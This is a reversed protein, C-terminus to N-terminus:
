KQIRAIEKLLVEKNLPKSFYDNFGANLCVQKDTSMAHATLAFVTVKKDIKRIEKLAEFGDMVPMKIDMLILSVDRNRKFAEVGELGNMAHILKYPSDKLIAKYYEQNSMQDEVILIKLKDGEEPVIEEVEVTSKAVVDKVEAVEMGVKPVTFYFQSGKGFESDVWINGNLLHVIKKTLYLGIGTGRYLKKKDDEIKYFRDFLYDIHSQKIGIGTDKVYFVVDKKELEYGFEIRGEETYKIANDLLNILVQKLRECDAKVIYNQDPSTNFVQIRQIGSSKLKLKYMDELERMIKKLECGKTEIKLQDSEIMSVDLIDNVLRLLSENSSNIISVYQKREEDSLQEEALINSFGVIANLPTRIEHSMNALFSSKLQDARRAKLFESIYNRKAQSMLVYMIFLYLFVGFYVDIIRSYVSPYKGVVTPNNYEVYFLILINLILLISVFLFQKGDLMFILYSFLVVFLYLVPGHTGFNYYWLFNTITVTILVLAWKSFELGRGTRALFFLMSFVFLSIYPIIKLVHGFDLEINIFIAVLSFLASAIILPNVFSKKFEINEAMLRNSVFLKM